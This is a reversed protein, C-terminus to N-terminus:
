LIICKKSSKQNKRKDRGRRERDKRIERVLSYFAEDVGMRTKASTEVFPIGYNKAVEAAGNIYVSRVPLDCKNGVLVM